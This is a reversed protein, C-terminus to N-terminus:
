RAYASMEDLEEKVRQNWDAQKRPDAYVDRDYRDQYRVFEEMLDDYLKQGLNQWSAVSQIQERYQKRLKRAFLEAIDFHLQEHALIAETRYEAKVWSFRTDMVARVQPLVKAPLGLKIVPEVFIGSKIEAASPYVDRPEGKFDKWTLRRAPYWVVEREYPSLDDLRLATARIRHCTSWLISPKRHRKIKLVNAGMRLAEQRVVNLVTAYDCDLSFGSDGVRIQGVEVGGRLDFTDKEEFVVVTAQEPLPAFSQSVRSRPKPACALTGATLGLLVLRTLM